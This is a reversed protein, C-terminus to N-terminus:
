NFNLPVSVLPELAGRRTLAVLRTDTWTGNRVWAQVRYLADEWGDHDFDGRALWVLRIGQADDELILGKRDIRWQKAGSVSELTLGPRALERTAEASVAIWLTAPYLRTDTMTTLDIPLASHSAVEARQLLVLADCRVGQNRLAAFDAPPRTGTVEANWTRWAECRDIVAERQAEGVGLNAQFPEPFARGLEARLASADKLGLSNAFWRFEDSRAASALGLAAIVSVLWVSLMARLKQAPGGPSRDPKM